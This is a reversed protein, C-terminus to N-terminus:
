VMLKELIAKQGLIQAGEWTLMSNDRQLSLTTLALARATSLFRVYLNQLGARNTDFTNYYFETFQAAITNINAM